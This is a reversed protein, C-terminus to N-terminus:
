SLNKVVMLENGRDDIVKVAIQKAEGAYFPASTDGALHDFVGPEFDAKLAKQMAEWAGTRPFFAQTVHFVRGNYDSDLFWAPVDSGKTHKSEMAAPDFVDLGRLTVQWRSPEGKATPPVETIAVDPLGAVSFVQSARTTKLLSGMVLDPTAQVYTAPVGIEASQEVLLRANPEIAFGVVFLRTYNKRDAEKLAQHVLQESIAGHEPGFVFAVADTTGTAIAEANLVLAKAPPRVQEFAVSQNSSTKISPSRRLVELMRDVFNVHAEMPASGSDSEGDGEWDVPTPISAEVVFPGAVRTIKKEEEPRDVLVEMTPPEDNAISKLTIHPVLGGM